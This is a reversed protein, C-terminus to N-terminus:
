DPRSERGVEHDRKLREFTRVREEFRRVEEKHARREEEHKLAAAEYFQKMEYEEQEIKEKERQMLIIQDKMAKREKDMAEQERVRDAAQREYELMQPTRTGRVSLSSPPFPQSMKLSTPSNFTAAPALTPTSNPNPQRGRPPPTIDRPVFDAPDIDAVANPDISTPPGRFVQAFPIRTSM